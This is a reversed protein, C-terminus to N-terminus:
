REAALRGENRKGRSVTLLDVEFCGEVVRRMMGRVAQIKRALEQTAYVSTTGISLHDALESMVENPVGDVLGQRVFTHRM